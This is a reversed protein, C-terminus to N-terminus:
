KKKYFILRKNNPTVISIPALLYFNNYVQMLKCQLKTILVNM